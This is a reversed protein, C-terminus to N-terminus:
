FTRVAHVNKKEAAALGSGQHRLHCAPASVVNLDRAGPLIGSSRGKGRLLQASNIYDNIERSRGIDDSV